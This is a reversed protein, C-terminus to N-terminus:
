KLTETKTEEISIRQDELRKKMEEQYTLPKHHKYIWASLKNFTLNDVCQTQHLFIRFFLYWYRQMKFIRRLPTGDVEVADSWQPCNSCKTTKVYM